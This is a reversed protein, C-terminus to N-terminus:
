RLMYDGYIFVRFRRDEAEAIESDDAVKELDDRGCHFFDLLSFLLNVNKAYKNLRLLAAKQKRPM